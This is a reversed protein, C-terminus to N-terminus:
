NPLVAVIRLPAGSGGGIKMPLAILTFDAEPLKELNAVNEFVPVNHEFLKIHSGFKTSQGFDISATDIGIAKVSRNEVLWRAAEPSLGPFHLKAVAEPGTENTGLYEGRTPWRRGYGTRLLVIVDVLQRRHKEEWQRLDQIGIQYDGDQACKNSVDIVAGNGILQELPIQDVSKRGQYFHMPADIHTGGHEAAAFRNATYYYGKPTVGAPGKELRFGSETPWYISQEDFSHTLDVLKTNGGTVPLDGNVATSKTRPSAGDQAIILSCSLLGVVVCPKLTSMATM